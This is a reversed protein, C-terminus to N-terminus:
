DKNGLDEIAAEIQVILSPRSKGERERELLKRLEAEEMGPLKDSIAKIPQSLIDGDDSAPAETRRRRVPEEAAAESRSHYRRELTEEVEAVVRAEERAATVEDAEREDEPEPMEFDEDVVKASKPLGYAKIVSEPIDVAGGNPHRRFRQGGAIFSNQLVVKVM